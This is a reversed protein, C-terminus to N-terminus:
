ACHQRHGGAGEASKEPVLRTTWLLKVRSGGARAVQACTETEAGSCPAARHPGGSGRAPARHAGGRQLAGRKRRVAHREEAGRRRVGGVSRRSCARGVRQREGGIHHLRPTLAPRWRRLLRPLQETHHRGGSRGGVGRGGGGAGRGSVAGGSDGV